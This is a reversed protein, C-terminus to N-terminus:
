CRFDHWTPNSEFDDMTHYVDDRNSSSTFYIKKLMNIRAKKAPEIRSKKHVSDDADRM